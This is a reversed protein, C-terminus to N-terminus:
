EAAQSPRNIAPLYRDIDALLEARPMSIFGLPDAASSPPGSSAPSTWQLSYALRSYGYARLLGGDVHAKRVASATWDTGFRAFAYCRSLRALLSAFGKGRAKGPKCWTGGSYVVKGKVEEAAAIADGSLLCAEGELAMSPDAYMLKLTRWHDAFSVHMDYVRGVQTAVVEDADYAIFFYANGPGAGGRTSYAPFLEYWSDRNARNISALLAFDDSFALRLGQERITRDAQLFFRGLLDRPGHDIVVADLLPIASAGQVPPRIPTGAAPRPLGSSPEPPIRPQATM